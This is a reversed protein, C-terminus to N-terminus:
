NSSPGIIDDITVDDFVGEISAHAIRNVIALSDEVIAIYQRHMAEGVPDNNDIYDAIAINMEEVFAVRRAKATLVADIFDAKKIPEDGLGFLHKVDKDYYAVEEGNEIEFRFEHGM